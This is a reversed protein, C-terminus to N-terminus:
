NSLCHCAVGDVGVILEVETGYPLTTNIQGHGIAADMVLPISLHAFHSFVVQKLEDRNNESGGLDGVVVGMVEDLAGSQRLQVLYRDIRYPLEGIDEIFLIIPGKRKRVDSSTGCLAALIALNGGILRGKATGRVRAHARGFDIVGKENGEIM